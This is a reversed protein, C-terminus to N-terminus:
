MRRDSASANRHSASVCVTGLPSTQPPRLDQRWRVQATMARGPGSSSGRRWGFGSRSKQPVLVTVRRRRRAHGLRDDNQCYGWVPTIESQHPQRPPPSQQLVCPATTTFGYNHLQLIYRVQITFYGITLIINAIVQGTNRQEADLNEASFAVLRGRQRCATSIGGSTSGPGIEAM